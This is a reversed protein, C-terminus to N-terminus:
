QKLEKCVSVSVSSLSFFSLNLQHVSRLQTKWETMYIVVCSSLVLHAHISTGVTLQSGNRSHDRSSPFFLCHPPRQNQEAWLGMRVLRQTGTAHETRAQTSSKFWGEIIKHYKDARCSFTSWYLFPCVIFFVRFTRFM